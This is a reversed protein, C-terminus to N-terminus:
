KPFDKIAETLAAELVQQVTQGTRNCHQRLALAQGETLRMAATRVKVRDINGIPQLRMM